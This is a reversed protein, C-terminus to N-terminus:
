AQYGEDRDSEADAHRPRSGPPKGPEGHEHGREHGSAREHKDRQAARHDRLSATM